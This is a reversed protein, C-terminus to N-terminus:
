FEFELLLRFTTDPSDDDLGFIAGAEWRLTKRTGVNASGLVAPGLGRSDQGAYFELAPEFLPSHRYRAQLGLATEFEDRIDSGWEGILLLNATGSWRGFEKEALVGLTVEEIDEESESEYEFLFGWDAAFEGQETLQRKLELEYAEVDFTGSRSRAGIMYFEGFWRQGFSRGLALQYLQAPTELGPQRDQATARFELETELADVYPHYIKDIVLGDARALGSLPLGLLPLIQLLPRARVSM